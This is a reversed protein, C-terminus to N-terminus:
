QLMVCRHIAFDSANMTNGSRSITVSNVGSILLQVHKSQTTTLNVRATTKNLTLNGCNVPGTNRKPIKFETRRRSVIVARQKRKTYKCIHSAIIQKIYYVYM